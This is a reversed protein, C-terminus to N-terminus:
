EVNEALSTLLDFRRTAGDRGLVMAGDDDISRLVDVYVAGAIQIAIELGNETRETQTHRLWMSRVPDFGDDEWRNIWTLFHRAFSELLEGSTVEACGEERLSTEPFGGQRWDDEIPGIVTLARAVMWDPPAGPIANDPIGLTIEAMAGLNAEIRNPWRFTVDIGPPVVAGLADGLGLMAVYVALSAKELPVEPHLIVAADFIDPREVCLVLGPDAGDAARLRAEASVDADADLVELRFLPPLRSGAIM